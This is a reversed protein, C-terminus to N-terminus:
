RKFMIRVEGDRINDIKVDTTEILEMNNADIITYVIKKKRGRM